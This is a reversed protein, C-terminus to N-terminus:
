EETMKDVAKEAAAERAGGGLGGYVGGASPGAVIRRGYAGAAGRVGGGRRAPPPPLRRGALGGVMVSWGAIFTGQQGEIRAVADDFSERDTGAMVSIDRTDQEFNM